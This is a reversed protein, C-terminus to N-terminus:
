LNEKISIGYEVLETFVRLVYSVVTEILYDFMFLLITPIILTAVLLAVLVLRTYDYIIKM